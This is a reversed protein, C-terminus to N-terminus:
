EYDPPLSTVAYALVPEYVGCDLDAPHSVHVSALTQDLRYLIRDCAFTVSFALPALDQPKCAYDVVTTEAHRTADEAPLDGAALAHIVPLYENSRTRCGLAPLWGSVSGDDAAIVVNRWFRHDFVARTPKKLALCAGIIRRVVLAWAHAEPCSAKGSLVEQLDAETQKSLAVWDEWSGGLLVGQLTATSPALPVPAAVATSDAGPAAALGSRDDDVYGDDPHADHGLDHSGMGHGLDMGAGHSGTGMIGGFPRWEQYPYPQYYGFRPYEGDLLHHHHYPIPMGMLPLGFLPQTVYGSAQAAPPGIPQLQPQLQPQSPPESTVMGSEGDMSKVACTEAASPSAVDGDGGDAKACPPGAKPKCRGLAQAGFKSLVGTSAFTTPKDVAHCMRAGHLLWEVDEHGFLPQASDKDDTGERGFPRPGHYRSSRHEEATHAFLCKSGHFCEDKTCYVTRYRRLDRRAIVDVTPTKWKTFGQMVDGIAWYLLDPTLSLMGDERAAQLAAAVLGNACGFDDIAAAAGDLTDAYLHQPAEAAVLTEKGLM